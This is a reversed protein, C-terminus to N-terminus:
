KDVKAQIEGDYYQIALQNYKIAEKKSTIYKNDVKTLSFGRNLTPEISMSLISKYNNEILIQNTKLISTTLHTIDSQYQDLLQKQAKIIPKTLQINSEQLKFLKNQTDKILSKSLIYTNSFINDLKESHYKFNHKISTEIQEFNKNIETESKSIQHKAYNLISDINNTANVTNSTIINAIHNIVKSPTDFSRTAIEDLITSDRQHGIGVFVPIPMYCIAKAPELYNFWDLDAQSGGGRILVIADYAKENSQIASYIVRFQNSVEKACDKGQMSAQYVDFQCLSHKKLLDAEVFFDGLGAANNSSIVAINTFDFPLALAKNNNIIGLNSLDTRIKKKRAERDGLTYNPDIDKITLSLGFNLHFNVDVLFLVKMGLKLNDGTAHHFKPLIKNALSGWLNIRIKAIAQGTNEDHEILEGYYHVGSKRWDSLEGRVWYGGSHFRKNLTKKIETLFDSLSFSSDTFDDLALESM